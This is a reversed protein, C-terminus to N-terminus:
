LAKKASYVYITQCKSCIPACQTECFIFDHCNPCYRREYKIEEQDIEKSTVSVRSRNDLTMFPTSPKGSAALVIGINICAIKDIISDDYVVLVGQGKEIHEDYKKVMSPDVVRRIKEITAPTEFFVVADMYPYACTKRM